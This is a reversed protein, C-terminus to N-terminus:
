PPSQWGGIRRRGLADSRLTPNQILNLPVMKSSLLSRRKKNEEEKEDEVVVLSVVLSAFWLFYCAISAPAAQESRLTLPTAQKTYNTNPHFASQTGRNCFLSVNM